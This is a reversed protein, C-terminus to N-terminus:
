EWGIIQKVRESGKILLPGFTPFLVLNSGVHMAMFLLAGPGVLAVALWHGYDSSGAIGAWFWGTYLNTAVDYALTTVLALAALVVSTRSFGLSLREPGMFRALAAGALAYVIESAMTVGALVLGAYGWPNAADYIAWSVVAVLVGRRFGLTYGAVFVLLDFFKVNPIGALAFNSALILAVFMGPAVIQKTLQGAKGVNEGHYTSQM